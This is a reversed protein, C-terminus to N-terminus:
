GIVNLLPPLMFLRCLKPSHSSMLTPKHRAPVQLAIPAVALRPPV